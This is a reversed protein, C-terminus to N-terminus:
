SVQSAEITKTKIMGSPNDPQSITVGVRLAKLGNVGQLEELELEELDNNLVKQDQLFRIYSIYETADQQNIYVLAIKDPQTLREGTNKVLVKDIRKKVVHYRINYAGEVDFRKEDKRFKIDIPLSHIFILQTTEVKVPLTTAVKHSFRAITAMSNLQILRLNKLYIDSFPKEPAFSQGIYFDYEVGDTRFKEFYGPYALQIEEQMQDLFNNVSYIVKNMSSELERRHQHAIGTRVDIANFYENVLSQVAPNGKSFDTLFPNINTELFDNVQIQQNFGEIDATEKLWKKTLFIKEDILGFGTQKKLNELMSILLEFQVNIDKNLAMNRQVTSNRIDIAGYLPYVNKFDVEEIEAQENGSQKDRIYHWAAENFKWQVSPQISTYKEKIVKDIGDHFEHISNKLLQSLLPIVPDLKTLLTQDFNVQKRSYLELVGVVSNGFYVPILAYNRIGDAKLLRLYENKEADKETIDPHFVVKPASFYRDVMNLYLNEDMGGKQAANILLSNVYLGENFVLKQNVRIAPLLGFEIDNSEAIIKLWHIVNSFYNSEESFNHNLIFNKICDLAYKVSIDCITTIGFGEFRFIDLPLIESIWKLKEDKDYSGSKLIDFKIEPLEKEPIIDIFRPDPKVRYYHTLGSDKDVVSHIIDTNFFAPLGYYKELIAAYIFEAPNNEAHISDIPEDISSENRLAINEILKYFANTSYFIGPRMPTNLAWLNTEEDEIMGSMSNYILEMLPEYDKVKEVDISQLLEPHQEFQEIVYSFFYKKHSNTKDKITKIYEVFPRFSLVRNCEPVCINEPIINIITTQM